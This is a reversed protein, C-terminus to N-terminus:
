AKERAWAIADAVDAETIGRAAIDARIEELDADRDDAVLVVVEVRRGRNLPLPQKLHLVQPDTLTLMERYAFM